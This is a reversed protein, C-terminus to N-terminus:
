ADSIVWGSVKNRMMNMKTKKPPWTTEMRKKTKRIKRTGYRVGLGEVGRVHEYSV